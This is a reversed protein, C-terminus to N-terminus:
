LSSLWAFCKTITIFELILSTIKLKSLVSLVQFNNMTSFWEFNEINVHRKLVNKTM